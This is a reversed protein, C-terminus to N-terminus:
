RRQPDPGDDGAMGQRNVGPRPASMSLSGALAAPETEFAPPRVLAPIRTRREGCHFIRPRHRMPAQVRAVPLVTRSSVEM